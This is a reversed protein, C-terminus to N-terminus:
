ALMLPHLHACVRAKAFPDVVLEDVTNVLFELEFDVIMSEGRQEIFAAFGQKLHSALGIELLQQPQLLLKNLQLVPHDVVLELDHDQELAAIGGALTADDFPHCLAEIGAGALHHRQRRRGLAFAGHYKWRYTCCRGDAPSITSNSRLQYM